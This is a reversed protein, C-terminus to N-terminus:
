LEVDDKWAVDLVEFRGYTGRNRPRFRGLGILVGANRMHYEFVDKTITDDLIYVDIEGEWEPIFPFRKTVRTTGGKRGDSPVFHDEYEANEAKIPTIISDLVMIGADFHKTYTSKGKGKIQVSLFKACERLSEAIQSGPIKVYGDPTTHMRSRWTRLEYDSSSEKELKPLSIYKSQSYPSASKLKVKALKM